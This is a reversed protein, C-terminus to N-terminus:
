KPRGITHHVIAAASNPQYRLTMASKPGTVLTTRAVANMMM